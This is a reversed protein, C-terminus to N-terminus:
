KQLARNEETLVKLRNTLYCHQKHLLQIENQLARNEETLNKIMVDYYSMKEHNDKFEEELNGESATNIM